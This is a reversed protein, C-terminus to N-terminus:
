GPSKDGPIPNSQQQGIPGLQDKKQETRIKSKKHRGEEM